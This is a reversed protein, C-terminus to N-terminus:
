YECSGRRKRHIGDGEASRYDEKVNLHGEGRSPNSKVDSDTLKGDSFSKSETLSAKEFNRKKQTAIEASTLYPNM